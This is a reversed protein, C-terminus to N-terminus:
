MPCDGVELSNFPGEDATEFQSADVSFVCQGASASLSDGANELSMVLDGSVVEVADSSSLIRLTPTAGDLSIHLNDDMMWELYVADPDDALPSMDFAVDVDLKPDVAITVDEGITDIIASLKRGADANLDFRIVQTGDITVTSTKDGLGVHNIELHDLAGDFTMTSSVGALLIDAIHSIETDRDDLGTGRDDVRSSSESAHPVPVSASVEGINIATKLSEDAGDVTLELLDGKALSLKYDGGAVKVTSLVSVAARAAQAGLVEIEGRVRGELTDPLEKVDDDSLDKIAGKIGGLDVEVALMTQHVEFSLPNNRSAGTLLDIDVDGDSPSTVRLRIQSRDIKEVCDQDISRADDDSACLVSGKLLYTVSRDNESEINGDAFIRTELHQILEATEDGFDFDVDRSRSSECAGSDFDAGSGDVVLCDEDDSFLAIGNKALQSTELFKLSASIKASVDATNGTLAQRASVASISVGTKTDEGECAMASAAVAFGMMAIKFNMTVMQTRERVNAM